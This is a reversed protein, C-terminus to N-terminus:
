GSQDFMGVIARWAKLLVGMLVLCFGIVAPVLWGLEFYPMATAWVEAWAVVIFACALCLFPGYPIENDRHLMWQTVGVLLGAFPAMFFTILSAQWGIFSGVMAMLTVDGFGMAERGLMHKGIVRVAWIMGGSTAMGVMSTLLGAWAPESGFQWVGVITASGIVGLGVIWWTLPERRLRACLVQLARRLGHRTMWRRPMIAYCWGWWCALAIALSAAQPTGRLVDPWPNPSALTLFEYQPGVAKPPSWCNGPLLSWPSITALLLGALTGPVTVTDPIIKEDIDIFSAVLMLLFLLVHAAFQTHVITFWDGNVFAGVPPNVLECPIALGREAVEWWYLAALSAGTGVEILMPRIWFGPGHLDAERRLGWWGIVPVRDRAQRRPVGLPANSWPSIPRPNWALAYIALNLWSGVISGFVFLAVLRVDLPVALIWAM